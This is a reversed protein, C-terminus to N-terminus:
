NISILTWSFQCKNITGDVLAYGQVTVTPAGDVQTFHLSFRGFPASLGPVITQTTATGTPASLFTTRPESDEFALNVPSSIPNISILASPQSGALACVFKLNLEGPLDLITHENGPNSAVLQKVGGTISFPGCTVTGDAGISQIVQGPACSGTVRKQIVSQDVSMTGNDLILGTGAQVMGGTGPAGQEGKQGNCVVRVGTSDTYEVGGVGNTCRGDGLPIETSTVSQGADGKDGKDGKAGTSGQPGQAGTAGTDGKAGQAGTAGTDGKDGKPGQPGVPGQPGPVGGVSWSLEIEDKKCQGPGSVKRLDHGDKHYCFYIINSTQAQTTSSNYAGFCLALAALFLYKKM